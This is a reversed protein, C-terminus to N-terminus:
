KYSIQFFFSFIKNSSRSMPAMASCIQDSKEDFWPPRLEPLEWRIARTKIASYAFRFEGKTIWTMEHQSNWVEFNENFQYVYLEHSIFYIVNYLKQVNSLIKMM